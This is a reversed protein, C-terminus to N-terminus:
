CYDIKIWCIQAQCCIFHLSLLCILPPHKRCNGLTLTFPYPFRDFMSVQGSLMLQFFFDGFFRSDPQFHFLRASRLFDNIPFFILFIYIQGPNGTMPWTLARAMATFFRLDVLRTALSAALIASL